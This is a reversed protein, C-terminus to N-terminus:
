ETEYRIHNKIAYNEAASKPSCYITVTKKNKFSFIQDGISTVSSQIHVSTLSCRDFVGRGISTVGYPINVETLATCDSFAWSEISIVSSPITVSSLSHCGYFAQEGISRVGNPMIVNNLKCHAFAHEDISTVTSPVEYIAQDKGGPYCILHKMGKDFLVGDASSFQKNGSSVLIDTLGSCGGFAYIGITTISDPILITTLNRCSSLAYNGITIVSDHSISRYLDCGYMPHKKKQKGEYDIGEWYM